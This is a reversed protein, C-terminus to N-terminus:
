FLNWEQILRKNSASDMIRCSAMFKTKVEWHIYAVIQEETRPVNGHLLDNRQRWIHYVAAGFCLRCLTTWLEKGKLAVSSWEVLDDWEKTPLADRFALWLIFSHRPIAKSFWVTKWWSVTPLKERRFDVRSPLSVIQDHVLEFGTEMVFSLLFGSVKAELNSEADYLARFGYVELLCGDPHWNDLWLFVINGDGIRFHLFQKALEKLKFNKRWSWPCPHPPSVLFTSARTTLLDMLAALGNLTSQQEM